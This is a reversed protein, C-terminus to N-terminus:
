RDVVRTPVELSALVGLFESPDILWHSLLRQRERGGATTFVLEVYGKPRVLVAERLAAIPIRLLAHVVEESTVIM